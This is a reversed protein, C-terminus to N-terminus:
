ATVGVECLTSSTARSLGVLLHRSCFFRHKVDLLRILKDRLTLGQVSAYCLCHTLRLVSGAQALGLSVARTGAGKVRVKESDVSLVNVFLGNYLNPRNRETCVM